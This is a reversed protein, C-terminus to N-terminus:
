STGGRLNLSPLMLVDLSVGSVTEPRHPGFLEAPYIPVGKLAAGLGKLAVWRCDRVRAINDRKWSPNWSIDIEGSVYDGIFILELSKRVPVTKDVLDNEPEWIERIRWLQRVKITLGTEEFVEREAAQVTTEDFEVGGGPLIWCGGRYVPDHVLLVHSGHEIYVASRLRVSPWAPDVPCAPDVPNALKM